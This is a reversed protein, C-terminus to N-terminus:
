VVSLYGHNLGRVWNLMGCCRCSLARIVCGSSGVFLKLVRFFVNHNDDSKQCSEIMLIGVVFDLQVVMMVDSRVDCELVNRCLLVKVKPVM